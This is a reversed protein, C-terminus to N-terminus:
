KTMEMFEEKSLQIGSQALRDKRAEYLRYLSPRKEDITAYHLKRHCLPCLCVINAYIDLGCHFLGQKQMAILHHGEMYQKGTSASIFTSHQHDVECQFGASHISQERILTSRRWRKQGKDIYFEGPEVPIDMKEISVTHIEFDTAEAFAIYHNFGASYMSNGRSNLKKFEEDAFLIDRLKRLYEIDSVEFIDELVLGKSLLHRSIWKLADLYHEISRQKLVTKEQLYKEFYCALANNKMTDLRMRLEPIM